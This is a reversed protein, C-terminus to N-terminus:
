RTQLERRATNVLYRKIDRLSLSCSAFCHLNVLLGIPLCHRLMLKQCAPTHLSCIYLLHQQSSAVSSWCCRQLPGAAVSSLWCLIQSTEILLMLIYGYRCLYSWILPEQFASLVDWCFWLLLLILVALVNGGAYL